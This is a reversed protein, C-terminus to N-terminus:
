LNGASPVIEEQLPGPNFDWLTARDVIPLLPGSLEGGSISLDSHCLIIREYCRHTLDALVRELGEDLVQQTRDPSWAEGLWDQLFLYPNKLQFSGFSSYASNWLSSGADLWFQWRHSLRAMRYQYITGLVIGREELDTVDPKAAVTGAAFLECFSRGVTEPSQGLRQAVAEYRQAAEVAARYTSVQTRDLRQELWFQRMAAQLFEPLPRLPEQQQQQVWRAIPQYAASAKAGLRDRRPDANSSLLQPRDRQPVFCSDSLLGARVPDIQRDSAVVLLEAVQEPFLLHGCEPYVLAVLALLSRILPSAWLPRSNDLLRVPINARDLLTKLTYVGVPDLGPGVIAIDETLLDGTAIAAIAVEAVSRLLERRTSTHLLRLHTLPISIEDWSAAPDALVALMADCERELGGTSELPEVQCFRSLSQLVLPDAGYGLRVSGEGNFSFCCPVDAQLLYEFVQGMLAPYEDVDDGIARECRQLLQQRYLRNPLLHQGYLETTLSYTLLGQTLLANRFKRALEGVKALTEDTVLTGNERAGVLRDGITEVPLGASAALQLNDIIHRVIQSRSFGEVSILGQELDPEFLQNALEQENEPAIPLPFRALLGLNNQLLPWYLLVERQFFGIPTYAQIIARNHTAAQLRRSLQARLESSASFVFLTRTDAGADIWDVYTQVLRDTKGSGAVGEWWRALEVM